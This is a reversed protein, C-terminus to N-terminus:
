KKEKSTSALDFGQEYLWRRRIEEEAIETQWGDVNGTKIWNMYKFALDYDSMVKLEKRTINKM